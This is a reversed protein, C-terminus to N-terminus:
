AASLSPILNQTIIPASSAAAWFDDNFSKFDPSCISTAKASKPSSTFLLSMYSFRAFFITSVNRHFAEVSVEICVNSMGKLLFQSKKYYLIALPLKNLAVVWVAFIVM